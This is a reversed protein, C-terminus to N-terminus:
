GFRNIQIQGTNTASTIPELGRMEPWFLNKPILVKAQTQPQASTSVADTGASFQNVYNTPYNGFAGLGQVGMMPIIPTQFLINKKRPLRVIHVKKAWTVQNTFTLKLGKTQIKGSNNFLTWLNSTSRNPFKLDTLGGSIQNYTVGSLDLPVASSKNGNDDEYVVGFRYVEGGWYGIYRSAFDDGSFCDANSSDYRTIVAGSTVVPNHEPVLNVYKVNGGFLRNLSVRLSKVADIQALDVTLDDLSVTGIRTNAKYDFTLSTTFATYELLSATTPPTSAVNELVALQIFGLNAAETTSPTILLTIKRGTLLGVGAHILDSSNVADYVHIPNTIASWKTFKKKTPDCTRYVFQYTGSLLNGGSGVSSLAITGVAGKRQLSLDFATLFNPSYPAPIECKIFRMGQYDDAFYLYDIGNEPYNIADIVRDDTNYDNAIVEQYLAYLTNSETDYCWINFYTGTLTFYTICQKLVGGILYKTAFAGIEEAAADSLIEKLYTTGKINQLAYFNNDGVLEVNHAEIYQNPQIISKNTDSNRGSEFSNRTYRM